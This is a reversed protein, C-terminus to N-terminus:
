SAHRARWSQLLETLGAISLNGYGGTLYREDVGLAEGLRTQPTHAAAYGDRYDIFVVPLKRRNVPITGARFGEVEFWSVSWSKTPSHIHFGVRDLRLYARGPLVGIVFAALGVAGPAVVIWGTANGSAVMAAGIGGFVVGAAASAIVGRRSPRLILAETESPTAGGSM